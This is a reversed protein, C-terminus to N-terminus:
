FLNLSSTLCCPFVSSIIKGTSLGMVYTVRNMSGHSMRTVLVESPTEPYHRVVGNDDLDATIDFYGIM